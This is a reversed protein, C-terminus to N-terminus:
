RKETSLIDILGPLVDDALHDVFKVMTHIRKQCAPCGPVVVGNGGKAVSPPSEIFTDFSHHLIENRLAPLLASKQM